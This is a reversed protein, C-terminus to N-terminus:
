VFQVEKWSTGNCYMLAGDSTRTVLKGRCVVADLFTFDAVEGLRLSPITVYDMQLTYSGHYYIANTAQLVNIPNVFGTVMTAWLTAGGADTEYMMLPTVRGSNITKNGAADYADLAGNKALLKRPQTLDGFTMNGIDIGPIPVGTGDPSIPTTTLISMNLDRYIDQIRKATWPARVSLELTATDYDYQVTQIQMISNLAYSQAGALCDPDLIKCTDGPKISEIDYGRAQDDGNSDLIIVTARVFPNANALLYDAAMADATAEQTVNQDIMVYERRGYRAISTADEYVKYLQVGGSPTGGIFRVANYLDRITKLGDVKTLHKGVIFTHQATTAKAKFILLNDAGSFWFWGPPCIQTLYTLLDATKVNNFTYDRTVGVTSIVGATIHSNARAIVDAVMVSPDKALYMKATNGNTDIFTQMGLEAVYGIVTVDVYEDQGSVLPEYDVIFGSYILLGSINEKDEIWLEIKNNFAVDSDEGYAAIPRALRIKMEGQGSNIIMRFAPDSVVDASWTKLFNGNYDFVKYYFNKVTFSM